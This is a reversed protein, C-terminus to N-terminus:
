LIDACVCTCVCVYKRVYLDSQIKEVREFLSQVRVCMSVRERETRRDNQRERDRNRKTECVRVSVCV